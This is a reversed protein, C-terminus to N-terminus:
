YCECFRLVIAEGDVSHEFVSIWDIIHRANTNSSMALQKEKRCTAAFAFSVNRMLESLNGYLLGELLYRHDAANVLLSM